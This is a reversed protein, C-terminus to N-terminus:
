FEGHLSSTLCSAEQEPPKSNWERDQSQSYQTFMEMTKRLGSSSISTYYRLYAVVSERLMRRLEVNM